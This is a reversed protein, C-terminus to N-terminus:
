KKSTHWAYMCSGGRGVSTKLYSAFAPLAERGFSLDLAAIADHIPVFLENFLQTAIVWTWAARAKPKLRHQM